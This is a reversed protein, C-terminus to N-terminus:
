EIIKYYTKVNESLKATHKKINGHIKMSITKFNNGTIIVRNNSIIDQTKLNITSNKMLINKLNLNKNLNNIQVDGNLYLMYDDTLKAQNATIKWIPISETNYIILIPKKFSSNKNNSFYYAQDTILKYILKGLSDYIYTISNITQYSPQHKDIIIPKKIKQSHNFNWCIITFIMLILIINCFIKSKQM